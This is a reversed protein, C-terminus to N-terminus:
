QKSRKGRMGEYAPCGLRGQECHACFIKKLTFGLVVAVMIYAALLGASWLSFQTVCLALGGLVGLLLVGFDVIGAAMLNKRERFGGQDGRKFLLGGLEGLGSSCRKGYYYCYSCRFKVGALLSSLCLLAYALGFIPWVFYFIVTGLAYSLLAIGLSICNFRLPYSEYYTNGEVTVTELTRM